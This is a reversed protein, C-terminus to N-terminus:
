FGLISSLRSGAEAVFGSSFAIWAIILTIVAMAAFLASRGSDRLSSEVAGADASLLEPSLESKRQGGGEAAVTVVEETAM